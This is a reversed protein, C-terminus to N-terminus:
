AVPDVIWTTASERIVAAAREADERSDFLAYVAPGAGSVDSRFSGLRELEGALPSSALDNRPLRKLDRVRVVGSLAELLAARREEFGVAAGRRDFDRYVSATSEKVADNPLAVLVAYEHPLDLISLVTGDGTGLRPGETLFFPVDVGLSAALSLLRDAPLPRALSSNALQLAAAADSSGGGLGAAVPIRKELRVRWRPAVGLAEAFAALAARVLTDEAFGDITIGDHSGVELEVLDSLEIHQLVTAVEHKGDPRLPGVVLALNIKARAQM